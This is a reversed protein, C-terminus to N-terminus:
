FDIIARTLGRGAFRRVHGRLKRSQPSETRDRVWVARRCDVPKENTKEKVIMEDCVNKM